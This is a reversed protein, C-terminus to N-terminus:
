PTRPAQTNSESRETITFVVRRNNARGQETSNSDIPQDMGFGASVLRSKDVGHDVLWKMVSAARKQSLALNYDRRGVNDTHGEIRVKKIEPTGDLASKVGALLGDSEKLIDASGFKFKVQELIRIERETVVVLPFGNKKPDDSKPGARDPCADDQDLIGDGDRDAPPPPLPEPVVAPEPPPPEPLPAPVPAAAPPPPTPAPAPSTEARVPSVFEISFLARLEPSGYGRTLGGGVGAGVRLATLLDYHLGMLWEAPTGRTKAFSAGTFVSTAAIEPGVFLRRDRTHAAVGLQGLIESGLDSGAYADDRGRYVVGARAAYAFTGLDGAVLIQPALRFSGDSTFQERLGTPAWARVGAAV